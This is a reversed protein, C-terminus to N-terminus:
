KHGRGVLGQRGSIKKGDGHSKGTGSHGLAPIVCRTAKECQRRESLFTCQPKRQTKEHSTQLGPAARHRTAKDVETMVSSLMLWFRFLVWHEPRPAFDAQCMPCSQLTPSGEVSPQEEASSTGRPEPAPHRQLSWASSGTRGLFERLVRDSHSPDGGRRPAPPFPTWSFTETGVTFSEPPAREPSRRPEQGPFTPLPPPEGDVNLDASAARLLEAWPRACEGGDPPSAPPNSPSGVGTPPRRRSLSLRSRRAAEM